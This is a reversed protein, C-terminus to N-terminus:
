CRRSRLDEITGRFQASWGAIPEDRDAARNLCTALIELLIGVARGAAERSYDLNEPAVKTRGSPHEALEKPSSKFHVAKNRLPFLWKLEERWAAEMTPEIGFANTLVDIIQERTPHGRPVPPGPAVKEVSNRFAELAHSAGAITILAAHWEAEMAQIFAAGLPEQLLRQRAEESLREQALAIHSWVIWLHTEATVHAMRGVM